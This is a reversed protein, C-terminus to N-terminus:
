QLIREVVTFLLQLLFKTAVIYWTVRVWYMTADSLTNPWWYGYAVFLTGAVLLSFISVPLFAYVWYFLADLPGASFLYSYLMLVVDIISATLVVIVLAKVFNDSM